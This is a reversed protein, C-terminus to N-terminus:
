RANKKARSKRNPKSRNLKSKLRKDSSLATKKEEWSVGRDFFDGFPRYGHFDVAESKWEALADDYHKRMRALVEQKGPDAISNTLELRNESLQYLEDSAEFEGEAWPWYIYKCDRTVVGFSFVKAPGWVNILPLAKHTTTNVPDDLFPLLSKGDMSEPVTLGALELFTPAFDVNGTLARCRLGRGRSSHRPDYVILPVRSSEEYPLVKSGYGHSGCLFGNDSSFVIVTNEAVGAEVLAKRIVGVAVDVGYILQHYRAMVEDYREAYGWSYFRGFQRGQRSQLSFHKGKDRGFNAPKQFTKGKYVDDFAPDPTDPMHPAKFSISLCFPKEPNDAVSELIFDRGFAGYARSSHPYEDAYQAVSPNKATRYHTQGPGAGWRDFDVVPLRGEGNPGDAIELGIKGAIATSYGAKRLLVPYSEQWLSQVLHGHEFNCGTKYEYKGTLVSARSAMCI